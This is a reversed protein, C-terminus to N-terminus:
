TKFNEEIVAKAVQKNTKTKISDLLVAQAPSQTTLLNELVAIVALRQVPLPFQVPLVLQALAVLPRALLQRNRGQQVVHVTMKRMM